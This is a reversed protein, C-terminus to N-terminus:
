KLQMQEVNSQTVRTINVLLFEKDKAEIYLMQKLLKVMKIRAKSKSRLYFVVVSFCLIVLLIIINCCSSFQEKYFYNNNISFLSVMVDIFAIRNSSTSCPVYNVALYFSELVNYIYM